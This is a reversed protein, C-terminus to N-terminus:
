TPRNHRGLVDAHRSCTALAAYCARILPHPREPFGGQLMCGALRASCLGASCGSSPDTPPASATHTAAGCGKRAPAGDHQRDRRHLKRERRLPERLLVCHQAARGRRQDCCHDASASACPKQSALCVAHLGLATHRKAPSVETAAQVGTQRPRTCPPRWARHSQDCLALARHARLGPRRMTDSPFTVAGLGTFRGLWFHARGGRARVQRFGEGPQPCM